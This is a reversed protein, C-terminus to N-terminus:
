SARALPRPAEVLRARPHVRTAPGHAAELAELELRSMERERADRRAARVAELVVAATVRGTFRAVVEGELFVLVEPVIELGYRMAATRSTGTEIVATRLDGPEAALRAWDDAALARWPKEWGAWHSEVVVPGTAGAVLTALAREDLTPPVTPASLALSALPSM